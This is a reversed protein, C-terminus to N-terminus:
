YKTQHIEENMKSGRGKPETLHSSYGAEECHITGGTHSTM